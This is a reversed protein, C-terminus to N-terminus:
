FVLKQKLNLRGFGILSLYLAKGTHFPATTESCSEAGKEKCLQLASPSQFIELAASVCWECMKGSRTKLVAALVIHQINRSYVECATFYLKCVM